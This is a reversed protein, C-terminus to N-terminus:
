QQQSRRGSGRREVRRYPRFLDIGIDVRHGVESLKAPNSSGAFADGPVATTAGALQRAHPGYGIMMYGGGANSVPAALILLILLSIIKM